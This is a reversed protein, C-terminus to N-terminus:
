PWNEPVVFIRDVERWPGDPENQALAAFLLPVHEREIAALAHASEEAAPAHAQQWPGIWDPKNLVVWHRTSSAALESVYQWRGALHDEPVYDPIAYDPRSPYFLYGPMFLRPTIPGSIGAEALLVQAEPLRTRQSQTNIMRSIKLDLRDKANPGYWRTPGNTEPVGLYYKIAIEHHELRGENRNHVIFDLEGLTRGNAQVQRNQILIEWGLLEELLVRYLREFYFGLRKPPTERLLPPM